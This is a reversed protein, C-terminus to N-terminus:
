LVYELHGSANIIFLVSELHVTSFNLSHKLRKPSGLTTTVSLAAVKQDLSNETKQVFITSSM